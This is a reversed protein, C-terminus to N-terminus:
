KIFDYYFKRREGLIVKYIDYNTDMIGKLYDKYPRDAVNVLGSNFHEGNYTQWYRGSGAQDMYNFVHAGVIYDLCAAGEVYNRYRMGREFQNVASNPLLAQLGQESTGYGFESFLLPKGGSKNYM